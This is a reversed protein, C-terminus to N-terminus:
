VESFDGSEYKGVRLIGLINSLLLLLLLYFIIFAKLDSVVNMIM